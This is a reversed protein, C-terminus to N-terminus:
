VTAVCKASTSHKLNIGIEEADRILFNYVVEERPMTIGCKGLLNIAFLERM